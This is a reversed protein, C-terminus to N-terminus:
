DEPIYIIKSGDNMWVVIGNPITPVGYMEHCNRYDKIGTINFKELFEKYIEGYTKGPKCKNELWELELQLAEEKSDATGYFDGIWLPNDSLCYEDIRKILTTALEKNTMNRIKDANVMESGREINDM